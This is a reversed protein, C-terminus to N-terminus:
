ANEDAVTCLVEYSMKVEAVASLEDDALEKLEVVGDSDLRVDEHTVTREM